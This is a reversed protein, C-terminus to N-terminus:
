FLSNTNKILKKKEAHLARLFKLHPDQHLGTWPLVDPLQTHTLSLTLSPPPPHSWNQKFSNYYYILNIRNPLNLIYAIYTNRDKAM